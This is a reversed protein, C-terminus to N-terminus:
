NKKDQNQIFSILARLGLIYSQEKFGSIQGMCVPAILSRHRFSERAHINSLHVEVVPIKVLIVADRISVSSHTYGAANLIIGHFKETSDQIWSVLDGEYNSQRIEIEIGLDLATTELLENLTDLTQDGYHGKERSGLHNLNPGHLVLIHTKVNLDSM